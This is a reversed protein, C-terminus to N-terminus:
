LASRIKASVMSRTLGALMTACTSLPRCLFVLM